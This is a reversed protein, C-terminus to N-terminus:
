SKSIVEELQNVFKLQEGNKTLSKAKTFHDNSTQRNGLLGEIYGRLAHSEFRKNDIDIATKLWHTAKKYMEQSQYNELIEVAVSIIFDPRDSTALHNNMYEDVNLEFAEFNERHGFYVANTSYTAKPLDGKEVMYPLIDRIVTELLEEDGYKIALDLNNNYVSIMYDDLASGGLSKIIKEENKRIYQYYESRIQTGYSKLIYFNEEETYENTALSSLYNKGIEEAKLPNSKQLLLILQFQEKQTIMDSEMKALLTPINEWDAAIQEGYAILQNAPVFGEIQQFVNTEPTIFLLTPYSDIEFYAALQSGFTGEADFKVNIFQEEFYAKVKPKSYVEKDLKHCYVCWDTYADIFILKSEAEARKLVTNWEAETTVEIFSLDARDTAAWSSLSLSLASILILIQQM